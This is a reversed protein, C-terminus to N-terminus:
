NFATDGEVREDLVDFSFNKKATDPRLKELSIFMDMLRKSDDSCYKKAGEYDHRSISQLFKEAVSKPSNATCAVLFLYTLLLQCHIFYKKM